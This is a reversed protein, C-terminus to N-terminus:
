LRFTLRIATSPRTVGPGSRRRTVSAGAKLSVLAKVTEGRKPDPVGIVAVERVAPLTYLLDEELGGVGATVDPDM